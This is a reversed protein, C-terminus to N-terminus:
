RSQHKARRVTASSNAALNEPVRIPYSSCAIEARAGYIARERRANAPSNLLRLCLDALPCRDTFSEHIPWHGVV